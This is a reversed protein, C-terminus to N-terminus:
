KCIPYWSSRTRNNAVLTIHGTSVQGDLENISVRLLHTFWQSLELSMYSLNYLPKETLVMKQALPIGMIFNLCDGSQRM